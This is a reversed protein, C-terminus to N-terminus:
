NNAAPRYVEATLSTVSACTFFVDNSGPQLFVSGFDSIAVDGTTAPISVTHDAIALGGYTAPSEFTVVIPSGSTNKFRIFTGPSYEFKNGNTGDLASLAAAMNYGARGIEKVTLRTALAYTM